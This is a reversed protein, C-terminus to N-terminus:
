NKDGLLETIRTKLNDSMNEIQDQTQRPIPIQDIHIPSGIKIRIPARKINSAWRPLLEYAGSIGVPIVPLGLALILRISGQRFPLLRKDWTREGEPFIGLIHGKNVIRISNRIAQVDTAYRRVPFSKALMLFWQMFSHKFESNKAMFWIHRKTIAGLIIGDMFSSHNSIFVAAGSPPINDLGEINIPILLKIANRLIWKISQHLINFNTKYWLHTPVKLATHGKAPAPRTKLKSAFRIRPHFEAIEEEPFYNSIAQRIFDEWKKGSEETFDFFLTNRGKLVVIVTNSEITVSVIQHLPIDRRTSDGVFVLKDASLSLIGKSIPRREFLTSTIGSLGKYTGDPTDESLLVTKSKLISGTPSIPLKFSRIKDYWYAITQRQGNISVDLGSTMEMHAGCNICRDNRDLWDLTECVPCRYLIDTIM